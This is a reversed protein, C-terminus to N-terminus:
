LDCPIKGLEYESKEVRQLQIKQPQATIPDHQDKIQAVFQQWVADVTLGFISNFSDEFRRNNELALIFTRFKSEDLHKLYSVYMFSQRYFMHPKLSYANWRKPFFFSGTADPYIHNGELIAKFAEAESVDYLAAGGSVYEALGESFWAPMNAGYNYAGLYQQLHFHSLEHTLVAQRINIPFERMREASLFVHNITTAGKVVGSLGTFSSFSDKTACIYVEVPKLFPRYQGNEVKDISAPLYKAVEKTLDEAGPEYLIRRDSDLALFHSTSRLTALAQISLSCSCLGIVILSLSITKLLKLIM